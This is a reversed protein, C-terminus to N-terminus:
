AAVEETLLNELAEALSVPDEQLLKQRAALHQLICKIRAPMEASNAIRSVMQDSLPLALTQALHRIFDPREEAYLGQVDCYLLWECTTTFVKNLTELVAPPCCSVLIVQSGQNVAELLLRGVDLQTMEMGALCDAHDVLIVQFSLVRARFDEVTHHSLARLMDHLLREAQIHLILPRSPHDRLAAATANLLVTKGSGSPGYLWLPNCFEGPMHAIANLAGRAFRSGIGQYLSDFIPTESM